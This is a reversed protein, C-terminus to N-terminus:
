FRSMGDQVVILNAFQSLLDEAFFILFLTSKKTCRGRIGFDCSLVYFIIAEFDVAFLTNNRLQESHIEILVQIHDMMGDIKIM